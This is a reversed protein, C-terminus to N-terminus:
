LSRRLGASEEVHRVLHKLRPAIEKELWQGKAYFSAVVCNVALMEGEFNSRLPVAIGELGHEHTSYRCYGHEALQKRAQALLTRVKPWGSGIEQQLAAALAEREADHVASYYALGMATNAIGRVAGVDPKVNPANNDVCSEILIMETGSRMGISVAGRAFNALEQMHGRALQRVSLQSLLPYGFSLASVSLRYRADTTRYVLYGLLGLTRTLRAVTPRTLGTRRAIESNSLFPNIGDFARLVSLGKALTYAFQPDKEDQNKM